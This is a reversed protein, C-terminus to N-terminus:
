HVVIVVFLLLLAGAAAIPSILLAFKMHSM